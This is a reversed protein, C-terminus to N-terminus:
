KNVGLIQKRIMDATEESLGAKAVQMPGGDKGTVELKDVPWGMLKSLMDLAKLKDHLKLKISGGSDTVTESIEAVVRTQEETLEASPIWSVGSATWVALEAMDAFAIRALEQLVRAKTVEVRTGAKDLIERVRAAISEDASLRAANGRHKKFGAAKYAEDATKGSAIGQAFLEHRQNKLVSM